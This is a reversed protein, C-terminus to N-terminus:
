CSLFGHPGELKVTVEQIHDAQALHLHIEGDVYDLNTYTGPRNLTIVVSM